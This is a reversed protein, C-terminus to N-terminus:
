FKGQLFEIKVTKASPKRKKAAEKTVKIRDDAKEWSFISEDSM